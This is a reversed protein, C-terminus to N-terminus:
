NENHNKPVKKPPTPIYRSQPSIIRKKVLDKSFFNHQGLHKKRTSHNFQLAIKTRNPTDITLNQKPLRSKGLGRYNRVKVKSKFHNDLTKPNYL